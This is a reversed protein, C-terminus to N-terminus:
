FLALQDSHPMGTALTSAYRARYGLQEYRAQCAKCVILTHMNALDEQAVRVWPSELTCVGCLSQAPAHNEPGDDACLHLSRGQLAFAIHARRSEMRQDKPPYPLTTTALNSRYGIDREFSAGRCKCRLQTSRDSAFPHYHNQTM